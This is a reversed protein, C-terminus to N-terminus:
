QEGTWRPAQVTSLECYRAAGTDTLSLRGLCNEQSPDAVVVLGRDILVDFSGATLLGVPHGGDLYRDRYKAVRGSHIRRLAFWAFHDESDLECGTCPDVHIAPDTVVVPHGCEGVFVGLPEQGPVSGRVIAALSELTGVLEERHRASVRGAPFDHAADDLLWQTQRFLVALQSDTVCM